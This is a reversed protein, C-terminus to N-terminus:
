KDGTLTQNDNIKTSGSPSTEDAEVIWTKGLAPHDTAANM